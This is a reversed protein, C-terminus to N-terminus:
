SHLHKIIFFTWVASIPWGIFSVLSMGVLGIINDLWGFFFGSAMSGVIFLILPWYWSVHVFYYILLALGVLAGLMTSAYLTFLYKQSAGRFDKAHRQHTNVFGFFLIWSIILQFPLSSSM